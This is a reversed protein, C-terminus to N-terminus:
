KVGTFNGNVMADINAKKTKFDALDQPTLGEFLKKYAAQKDKYTMKSKEISMAEFLKSESNNRWIQDFTSGNNDGFQKSFSDKAKAQLDINVQSAKNRRAIEILVDPPVKITGTAAESMNLGAVSDSTGLVKANQLAQNALDKALQDYKESQAFMQLKRELNAAIGGKTFFAEKKLEEAVKIVEDSVREADTLARQRDLLSQRQAQQYKRDAEESPALPALDGAKRVPYSLPVGGVKPLQQPQTTPQAAPQSPQIPQQGQITPMGITGSEATYTAPAGGATTTLQPTRRGQQSESTTAATGINQLITALKEPHNEAVNVLEDMHLKTIRKDVGGNLLLTNMDNLVQRAGAPDKAANVIAPDRLFGTMLQFARDSNKKDYDFQKEQTSLPQRKREERSTVVGTEIEEPVLTEAKQTALQQQRLLQQAQQVQLPNLQQAQQFQQASNAINLMDAISTPKAQPGLNYNFGYEPM